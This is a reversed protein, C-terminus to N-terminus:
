FLNQIKVEFSKPIQECLEKVVECKALADEYKKYQTYTVCESIWLDIEKIETHPIFIHLKQKKKIWLKQMSLVDDKVATQNELKDSIESHIAVISLKDEFNELIKISKNICDSVAQRSIGFNDGIESLSLNDFYYNSMIDYQKDTLLKGYCDILKIIRLNNDLTM